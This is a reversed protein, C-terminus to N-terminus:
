QRSEHTAQDALTVQDAQNSQDLVEGLRTIAADVHAGIDAPAGAADLMRLASQLLQMAVLFPDDSIDM